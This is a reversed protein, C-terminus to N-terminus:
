TLRYVRSPIHGYTSTEKVEVKSGVRLKLNDICDKCIWLVKNGIAHKRLKTGEDLKANIPTYAVNGCAKRNLVDAFTNNSSVIPKERVVQCVGQTQMPAIDPQVYKPDRHYELIRHVIVQDPSYVVYENHRLTGSWSATLNAFGGVSNYGQAELMALTHNESAMCAKVKGLAVEVELMYRADTSRYGNHTYGIAKEPGGMYIGRGFMCHGSGPRLGEACIAEINKAKTGHYMHTVNKVKDAVELFRLIQDDTNEVKWAAVFIYGPITPGKYKPNPFVRFPTGFAALPKLKAINPPPAAPKPPKPPQYPKTNATIRSKLGM